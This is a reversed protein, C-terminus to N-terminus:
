AVRTMDRLSPGALNLFQPRRLSDITNALTYALVNPLHSVVAFIRDHKEPDMMVIQAGFARILRCLKARLRVSASLTPTLIWKKKKFLDLEAAKMGSKETGSIPHGGIFCIKKLKSAFHVIEEKTSGVDTVLTKPKLFPQIARLLSPITGVPTALIVLDAQQIFCGIQSYTKDVAKRRLAIQRNSRSRSVGIIKESLNKKKIELAISGGILGLGIVVVTPFIPKM